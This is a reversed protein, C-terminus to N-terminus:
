DKKYQKYYLSKSIILSNDKEIQLPSLIAIKPGLPAPLVVSTLKNKFFTSGVDPLTLSPVESFIAVNSCFLSDNGVSMASYAQTGDELTNDTAGFYKQVLFDM